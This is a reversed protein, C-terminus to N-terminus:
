DDGFDDDFGEDIEERELDSIHNAIICELWCTYQKDTLQGAKHRAKATEFRNVFDIRDM